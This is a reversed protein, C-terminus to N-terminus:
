STNLAIRSVQAICFHVIHEVWHAPWIQDNGIQLKMGIQIVGLARDFRDFGPNLM